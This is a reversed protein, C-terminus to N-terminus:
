LSVTRGRGREVDLLKPQNQTRARLYTKVVARTTPSGGVDAKWTSPNWAQTVVDLEHQKVNASLKVTELLFM